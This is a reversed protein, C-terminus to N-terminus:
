SLRIKLNVKFNNKAAIKLSYKNPYLLELRKKVNSLGIGGEVMTNNNSTRPSFNNETQLILSHNTVFIKIDISVNDTLSGFSHKFCNEVFSILLFPAIELEHLSPEKPKEFQIIGRDAYQMKQLDVYDSIFKIEKALEVKQVSTEYTIYRLVNSLKLILEPAQESKNLAFNYINNLSNFLVHPQIQSKLLKLKNTLNDQNIKSLKKEKEFNDIILKASVFTLLPISIEGWFYLISMPKVPDQGRSEYSIARELISEEFIGYLSVSIIVCVIYLIYRKKYLTNKPFIFTIFYILCLHGFVYVLDALPTETIHLDGKYIYVIYELYYLASITIYLGIKKIKSM